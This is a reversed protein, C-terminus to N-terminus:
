SRALKLKQEIKVIAASIEDKRKQLIAERKKLTEKVQQDKGDYPIVDIVDPSCM